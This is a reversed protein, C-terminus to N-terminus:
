CYIGNVEIRIIYYNYIHGIHLFKRGRLTHGLFSLSLVNGFMAFAGGFMRLIDEFNELLM